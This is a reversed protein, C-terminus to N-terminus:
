MSDYVSDEENDWEQFSQESMKQLAKNVIHESQEQEALQMVFKEVELRHEVTLHEIVKILEERAM